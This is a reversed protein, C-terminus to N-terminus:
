GESCNTSLNAPSPIRPTPSATPLADDKSPSPIRHAICAPLIAPSTAARAKAFPSTERRVRSGNSRWHRFFYPASRRRAWPILWRIAAQSSALHSARVSIRFSSLGSCNASANFVLRRPRQNHFNAADWERASAVAITDGLSEDGRQDIGPVQKESGAGP